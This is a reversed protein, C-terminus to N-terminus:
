SFFLPFFGPTSAQSPSVCALVVTRSRETRLTKGAQVVYYGAKSPNLAFVVAVRLNMAASTASVLLPLPFGPSRLKHYAVCDLYKTSILSCMKRVQQEHEEKAEKEHMELWVSILEALDPAAHAHQDFLAVSLAEFYGHAPGAAGALEPCHLRQTLQEASMLRSSVKTDSLDPLVSKGNLKPRVHSNWFHLANHQAQGLAQSQFHEQLLELVEPGPTPQKRALERALWIRMHLLSRNGRAGLAVAPFDDQTPHFASVWYEVARAGHMAGMGRGRRLKEIESETFSPVPAATPSTPSTPQEEDHLERRVERLSACM